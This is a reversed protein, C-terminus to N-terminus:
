KWISLHNPPYPVTETDAAGAESSMEDRDQFDGQMNLRDYLIVGNMGKDWSVDGQGLNPDFKIGRRQFVSFLVSAIITYIIEANWQAKFPTQLLHKAQQSAGSRRRGSLM